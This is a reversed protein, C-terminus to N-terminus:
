GTDGPVGYSPARGSDLARKVYNEGSVAVGYMHELEVLAVVSTSGM